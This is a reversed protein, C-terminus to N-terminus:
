GSETEEPLTEFEEKKGLRLWGERIVQPAGFTAHWDFPEIRKGYTDFFNDLRKGIDALFPNPDGTANPPFARHVATTLLAQQPDAALPQLWKLTVLQQWLAPQDPFKADFLHKAILVTQPIEHWQREDTKELWSWTFDAENPLGLKLHNETSLVPATLFTVAIRRLADEYQDKPIAISKVPLIGSTVHLSGKPDVLMTVSLPEDDIAQFINLPQGGPVYTKIHLDPNDGSESSFYEEGLRGDPTELWYGVLGDNLQKYEGLRIPFKVKTFDDASRGHGQLEHTFQTWSQDTAPPGELELNLKARVVAVPRGLLVALDQHEAFNEPDINELANDLANLFHHLFSNDTTAASAISAQQRHFLYRVVRRLHPNGISDIFTTSSSDPVPRWPNAANLTLAGLASGDQDYFMISRDLNNPLLWGCVPSSAPHANMEQEGSSASLFRFNLRAPQTLRPKLHVSAPMDELSVTESTVISPTDFEVTQGFSDILRLNLIRMLGSRIPNFDVSPQPATLNSKGVLPAVEDATFVQYEPFGLPDAVDLQRTQKQMLLAEHFGGLSQSLINLQGLAQQVDNLMQLCEPSQNAGFDNIFQRITSGLRVGANPTLITSGTYPNDNGFIDPSATLILDPDTEALQYHRNVYERDYLRADSEENSGPIAPLYEVAWELLFPNWIAASEANGTEPTNEFLESVLAFLAMGEDFSFNAPNALPSDVLQCEVLESAGPTAHRDNRLAPMQDATMNEAFLVVPDNARWYRPAAVPRLALCRGKDLWSQGDAGKTQNFDNIASTLRDLKAALQNAISEASGSTIAGLFRGKEDRAISVTGLSTLKAQLPAISEKRVYSLVEDADFFAVTEVPPYASVMYKYWDAFLQRRLYSVERGVQDYTFQLTKTENLLVAINDPLTVEPTGANSSETASQAELAELKISWLTGGPFATFGKDHRAEQFKHGIDLARNQLRSLFQISELLEEIQKKDGQGQASVQSALYASLAETGTNGIAIDVQNASPTNALKPIAKGFLVALAPTSADSNIPSDVAAKWLFESALADNLFEFYKEDKAYRNAFDSLFIKLYDNEPNAYLGLVEYVLDAQVTAIDPDYFGFVSMCNPYFAAFTPETFGKTGPQPNYGVATIEQLYSAGNLNGSVWETEGMIQRGMFRFPQTKNDHRDDHFPVNVASLNGQQATQTLAIYHSEVIWSKEIVGNKKRHILWIDPVGPYETGPPKNLVKMLQDVFLEVNDGSWGMKRALFNVGSDFSNHNGKDVVIVSAREQGIPKIWESAMLISDWIFSKMEEWTERHNIINQPFTPKLDDLSSKKILRVGITKSFGKPFSWHLHVGAQLLLNKDQFPHNLIAEGVYPTDPNHDQTKDTYPLRSYDALADKVVTHHPLFLADLHIPAVIAKM